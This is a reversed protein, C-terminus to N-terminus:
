SSRPMPQAMLLKVSMTVSWTSGALAAILEPVAVGTWPYPVVWALLAIIALLFTFAGLKKQSSMRVLAAALVLLSLVLTVFFGVSVIVHLHYATPEPFVGILFLFGAMLLLFFVGIRGMLHNQFFERVAGFAFLFSLIAGLILGSNFLLANTGSVGLDSLANGTWSWWPSILIALSILLFSVVPSFIGCILFIRSKKKQNTGPMAEENQLFSCPSM